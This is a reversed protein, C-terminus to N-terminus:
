QAMLVLWVMVSTRHAPRQPDFSRENTKPTRSRKQPLWFPELGWLLHMFQQLGNTNCCSSPPPCLLVLLVRALCKFLTFVQPSLGCVWNLTLCNPPNEGWVLNSLAEQNTKNESRDSCRQDSGGNTELAESANGPEQCESMYSCM